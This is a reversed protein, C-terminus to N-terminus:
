EIIDFAKQTGVRLSTVTDLFVDSVVVIFLNDSLDLQYMYKM